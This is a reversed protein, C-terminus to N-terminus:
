DPYKKEKLLYDELSQRTIRGQENRKLPGQRDQKEIKNRLSRPSEDAIYAAEPLTFAFKSELTARRSLERSPGAINDSQNRRAGGLQARKKAAERRGSEAYESDRLPEMANCFADFLPRTLHARLQADGQLEYEMEEGLDLVALLKGVTPSVPVNSHVITNLTEDFLKRLNADDLEFQLSPSQQRLENNLRELFEEFLPDTTKPM